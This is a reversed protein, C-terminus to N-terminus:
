CNSNKLNQDKIIVIEVSSLQSSKRWRPTYQTEENSYKIGEVYFFDNELGLSLADHVYEPVEHITLLEEKSTESKLLSRAGSSDKYIIKDKSYKPQWLKALVRLKPHFLLEVYEFGFANDNNTWSLLLTCDHNLKVDLCDSIFDLGSDTIKIRYCGEVFDTWNIQYQINAGAASIKMGAFDVLYSAPFNSPDVLEYVVIDNEDIIQFSPASAVFVNKLCGLLVNGDADDGVFILHNSIAKGTISYVGDATFEPQGVVSYLKISGQTLGAITFQISYFKGLEFRNNQSLAYGATLSNYCAAGNNWIWENM